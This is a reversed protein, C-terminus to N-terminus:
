RKVKRRMTERARGLRSMVTGIPVDLTDAIERYSLGEAARLHLVVRQDEPLESLARNVERRLRSADTHEEPSPGQWHHEDTLEESPRRKRGEIQTLAWNAAIRFLWPALPRDEEFRDLARWARLFTEQVLDDADADNRFYRLGLAFVRRQYRQVLTAFAARDGRKSLVVLDRDEPEEAAAAKPEAM